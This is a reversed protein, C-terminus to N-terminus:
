YRAGQRQQGQGSILAYMVYGRSLCRGQAFSPLFRGERRTWDIRVYTALWVGYREATLLFALSSRPTLLLARTENSPHFDHETQRSVARRKKTDRLNGEAQSRDEKLM